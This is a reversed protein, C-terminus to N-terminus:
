TSCRTHKPMPFVRTGSKPASESNKKPDKGPSIESTRIPFGFLTQALQQKPNSTLPARGFAVERSLAVRDSVGFKALLSSVHFKVTRESVKLQAAIEKNALNQVVADLVTQERRSIRIGAGLSRGAELLQQVRETVPQLFSDETVAMLEFDEPKQGRVLCHVALLGAM